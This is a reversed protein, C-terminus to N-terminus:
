LLIKRIRHGVPTPTQSAPVRGREQWKRKFRRIGLRNVVPWWILFAPVAALLFPGGGARGLPLRIGLICFTHALPLDFIIATTIGLIATLRRKSRKWALYDQHDSQCHTPFWGM